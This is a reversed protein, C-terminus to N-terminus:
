AAKVTGLFRKLLAYAARTDAMNRDYAAHCKRCQPYYMEPNPSYYMMVGHGNDGYMVDPCCGSYSWERAQQGCYVCPYEFAKGFRERVRVHAQQYTIDVKRYIGKNHGTEVYNEWSAPDVYPM